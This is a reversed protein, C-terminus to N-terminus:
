PTKAPTVTINRGDIKFRVADTAELMKFVQVANVNREINGRFHQTIPAGEYKVEVDYWRAVENMVSKIDNGEFQFYGNKWAMVQEIDAEKDITIVADNGIQAQQGPTIKHSQINNNVSVAGELLTVAAAPEDHYAHINFHTGTVNVTTHNGIDVIFAKKANKNKLDPVSAVEFYLEGSAEVKRSDNSFTVPYRLSSAANLWVKTGDSLTITVIKSGAPVTLINYVPTTSATKQDKYQIEGGPLRVINANGQMAVTGNSISDLTVVQGNSLTISAKPIVPPKIDASAPQQQADTTTTHTSYFFYAGASLVVLIAAAAIYWRRRSSPHSIIPTDESDGSKKAEMIRKFILESTQRSPLERFSHGEFKEDILTNLYEEEGLDHLLIRLSQEEGPELTGDLYKELLLRFDKKSM